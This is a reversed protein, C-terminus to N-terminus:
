SWADGGGVRGMKWWYGLCMFFVDFADDAWPRTVRLIMEM